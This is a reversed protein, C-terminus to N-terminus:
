KGQNSKIKEIVLGKLSRERKGFSCSYAGKPSPLYGTTIQALMEAPRIKAFALDLSYLYFKV